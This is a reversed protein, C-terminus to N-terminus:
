SIGPPLSWTQPGPDSWWDLLFRRHQCLKVSSSISILSISYLRRTSRLCFSLRRRLYQSIETMIWRSIGLQLGAASIKLCFCWSTLSRLILSWCALSIWWNSTFQIRKKFRNCWLVESLDSNRTHDSNGGPSHAQNIVYSVPAPNKRKINM